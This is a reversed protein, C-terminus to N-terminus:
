RPFQDTSLIQGLNMMIFEKPAVEFRIHFDFYRVVVEANEPNTLSALRPDSLLDKRAQASLESM